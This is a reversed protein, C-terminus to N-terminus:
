KLSSKTAVQGIEYYISDGNEPVLKLTVERTNEDEHILIVTLSTEPAPPEKDIYGGTEEWEGELCILRLDELADPYAM